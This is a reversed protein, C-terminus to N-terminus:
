RALKKRRQEARKLTSMKEPRKMSSWRSIEDMNRGCGTCLGSKLQCVGICPSEIKQAM